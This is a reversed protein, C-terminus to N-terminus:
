PKFHLTVTHWYYCHSMFHYLQTPFHGYYKHISLLFVSFILNSFYFLGEIYSYQSVQSSLQM